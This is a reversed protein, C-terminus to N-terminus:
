NPLVRLGRCRRHHSPLRQRALLFGLLVVVMLVVVVAKRSPSSSFRDEDENPLLPRDLSLMSPTGERDVEGGTLGDVVGLVGPFLM